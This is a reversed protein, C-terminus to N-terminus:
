AAEETTEIDWAKRILNVVHMSVTIKAAYAEQRLRTMEDGPLTVTTQQVKIGPRQRRIIPPTEM